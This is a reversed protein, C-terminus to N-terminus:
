PDKRVALPKPDFRIAKLADTDAPLESAGEPVRNLRLLYTLVDIYEQDSLSAPDNKPMRERIYAYLEQLPKGGWAAQFTPSAHADPTHCSRCQGLYVDQGRSVQERSYVGADSSRSSSQAAATASFMGCAVVVPWLKM